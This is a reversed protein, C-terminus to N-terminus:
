NSNNVLYCNLDISNGEGYHCLCIYNNTSCAFESLMCFVPDLDNKPTVNKNTLRNEIQKHCMILRKSHLLIIRDCKTLPTIHLFATELPHHLSLLAQHTYQIEGLVNVALLQFDQRFYATKRADSM